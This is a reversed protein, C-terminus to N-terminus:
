GSNRWRLVVWLVQNLTLTRVMNVVNILTKLTNYYLMSTPSSLCLKSVKGIRELTELSEKNTAEITDRLNKHITYLSLGTTERM